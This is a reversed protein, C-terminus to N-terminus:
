KKLEKIKEQVQKLERHLEAAIEREDKGDEVMQKLREMDEPNWSKLVWGKARVKEILDQQEPTLMPNTDKMGTGSKTGFKLTSFRRLGPISTADGENPPPAQKAKYAPTSPGQKALLLEPRARSPQSDLTTRVKVAPKVPRSVHPVQDSSTQVVPATAPTASGEKVISSTGEELARV